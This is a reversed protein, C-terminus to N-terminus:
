MIYPFTFLRNGTNAMEIEVQFYPYRYRASYCFLSVKTRNPLFCLSLIERIPWDLFIGTNLRIAPFLVVNIIPCLCCSVKLLYSSKILLIALPLLSASDQPCSVTSVVWLVRDLNSDYGITDQGKYCKKRM